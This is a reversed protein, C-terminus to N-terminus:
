LYDDEGQDDKGEEKNLLGRKEQRTKWQELREEWEGNIFFEKEGEFEKGTVASCYIM